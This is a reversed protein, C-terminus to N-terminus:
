DISGHPHKKDKFLLTLNVLLDVTYDDNPHTLVTEATANIVEGNIFDIEVTELITAIDGLHALKEENTLNVIIM